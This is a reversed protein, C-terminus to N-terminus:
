LIGRFRDPIAYLNEDALEEYRWYVLFRDKRGILLSQWFAPHMYQRRRRWTKRYHAIFRSFDFMTSRVAHDFTEFVAEIREKLPFELDDAVVAGCRAANEGLKNRSRAHHAILALDRDAWKMHFCYLGDPIHLRPHTSYHFGGEWTVNCNTISPKTYRPAVRCFTRARLMPEDLSVPAEDINRVHVVDLGFPSIVTEGDHSLIFERLRQGRSPDLVIFEDVDAYICFDYYGLLGRVLAQVLDARNRNYQKHGVTDGAGRIPVRLINCGRCIAVVHALGGHCIIYLNDQGFEAGYHAIWKQLYFADERVMTIAAIRGHSSTRATEGLM